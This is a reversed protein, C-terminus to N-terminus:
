GATHLVLDFGQLTAALDEDSDIDCRLFRTAALEPRKNVLERYSAENRGSLVLELGPESQLLAAATLSGVRGTGGLILVRKGASAGAASCTAVFAARCRGRAAESPTHRATAVQLQGCKDSSGQKQVQCLRVSSCSHAKSQMRAAGRYTVSAPGVVVPRGCSARAVPALGM